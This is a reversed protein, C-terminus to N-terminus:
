WSCVGCLALFLCVELRGVKIHKNVSRMRRRSLESLPIMGEMMGYELLQVDTPLSTLKKKYYYCFPLATTYKCAGHDFIDTVMVVVCEDIEPHTRHLLTLNQIKRAVFVVVFQEYFRTHNADVEEEKHYVAAAAEANARALAAAEAAEKEKKRTSM